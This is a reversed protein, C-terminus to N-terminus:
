TCAHRPTYTPSRWLPGANLLTYLERDRQACAWSHYPAEAWAGWTHCPWLEKVSAANFDDVKAGVSRWADQSLNTWVNEYCSWRARYKRM